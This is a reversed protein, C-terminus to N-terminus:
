EPDPLFCDLCTAMDLQDNYYYEEPLHDVIILDYPVREPTLLTITNAAQCEKGCNECEDMWFWAKSEPHYHTREGNATATM